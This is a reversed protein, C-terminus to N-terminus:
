LVTVKEEILLMRLLGYGKSINQPAPNAKAPQSLPDNRSETHDCPLIDGLSKGHTGPWMQKWNYIIITIWLAYTPDNSIPCKWRKIEFEPVTRM